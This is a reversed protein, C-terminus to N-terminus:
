ANKLVHIVKRLHLSTQDRNQLKKLNSFTLDLKYFHAGRDKSQKGLFPWRREMELGSIQM